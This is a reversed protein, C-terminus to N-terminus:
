RVGRGPSSTDDVRVIPQLSSPRPDWDPGRSWGGPGDLDIVMDDRRRTRLDKQRRGYAERRSSGHGNSM